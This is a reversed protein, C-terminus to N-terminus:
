VIRCVIVTINDRGGAELAANILTQVCVQPEREGLLVSCIAQEEVMDTLGDSCILFCDGKRVPYSEIYPEIRMEEPDIGLYQTLYPKRGTVNGAKMEAEDTHDVSLQQMQGGSVRYCRSDGLNCVWMQGAYFFLSAATSGMQYVGLNEGSRFVEENMRDCMRALSPTIDVPNIDDGSELFHAATAASLNSAIEGYDGGGMGDFVAFFLPADEMGTPVSEKLTLIESLGHNDSPLYEGNFYFNDENNQRRKGINCGCAAYVGRKLGLNLQIRDLM